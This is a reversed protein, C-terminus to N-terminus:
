ETRHCPCVFRIRNHAFTHAERHATFRAATKSRLYRRQTCFTQRRRAHTRGYHCTSCPVSIEKTRAERRASSISQRSDNNGYRARYPRFLISHDAQRLSRYAPRKRCPHLIRYLMSKCDLYRQFLRHETFRGEALPKGNVITSAKGDTVSQFLNTATIWKDPYEGQASVGSGMSFLMGDIAFVSKCFSLHTPVFRQSGWKDDQDFAAAFLGCDGWALAGAFNTTHSWQDFRDANNGNPLMSKWDTYHVTTTGPMVNWDWGGKEASKKDKYPYGSAALSGEYLVELTGHSQYRGFRNTKNYIEGGWFRTTPCRMTAVWNAQRYVGAPSYNFQYFGDTKPSRRRQLPRNQLLRQLLRCTGPRIRQRGHRRWDGGTRPFSSQFLERGARLAPSTRRPQQRLFPETDSASSTAMLYVSVIAKSMRQYADRTIRFATGKLRGMYEVWTRYSYMYGNYHTKHHFGTGDPKLIDKEGPVYQTCASLYRSFSRLDEAAQANDPNHLACVFLHPLVNYLYDSNVTRKLIADKQNLKYFEMLGKVSEILRGQQEPTCVPLASLFDVPVVRVDTYSNYPFAPIREIVGDNLVKDLYPSFESGEPLNEQAAYALARIAAALKRTDEIKVTEMKATDFTKIFDIARQVEAKTAKAPKLPYKKRLKLLDEISTDSTNGSQHTVASPISNDTAESAQAHPQGALSLLLFLGLFNKM